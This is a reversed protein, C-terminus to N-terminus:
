GHLLPPPAPRRLEAARLQLVQHRQVAPLRQEASAPEKGIKASERQLQEERYYGKHFGEILPQEEEPFERPRQV